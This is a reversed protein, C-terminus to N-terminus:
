DCDSVLRHHIAFLALELRGEVGLKHSIGSLDKVLAETSVSLKRAIEKDSYGHLVAAVIRVEHPTLGFNGPSGVDGSKATSSWMVTVRNRGEVGFSAADRFSASSRWPKLGPLNRAQSFRLLKTPLM